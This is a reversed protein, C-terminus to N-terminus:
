SRPPDERRARAERLSRQVIRDLENSFRSRDRGSMPPPGGGMMGAERLGAKLERTALAGGISDPTFERGNTGLASAGIALCRAALPLDATVVVDGARIEAAIWDDAADLGEGVVVLEVGLDRPVQIRQNAVVVVPLGLRAAVAYVEDKVPCADGDVFIEIM